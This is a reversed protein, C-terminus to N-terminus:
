SASRLPNSLWDVSNSQAANQVFLVQMQKIHAHPMQFHGGSRLKGRPQVADSAVHSLSEFMPVNLTVEIASIGGDGPSLWWNEM